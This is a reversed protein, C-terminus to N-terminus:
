LHNSNQVVLIIKENNIEKDRWHPQNKAGRHTRTTFIHKDMM